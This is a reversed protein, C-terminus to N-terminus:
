MKRSLHLFCYYVNKLHNQLYEEVKKNIDNYCKQVDDISKAKDVTEIGDDYMEVISDLFGKKECGICLFM